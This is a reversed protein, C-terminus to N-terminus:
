ALLVGTVDAGTEVDLVIFSVGDRRWRRLQEISVYRGRTADYLRSRAYRKVLIPGSAM